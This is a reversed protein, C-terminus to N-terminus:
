IWGFLFFSRRRERFVVLMVERNDPGATYMIYTSCAPCKRLVHYVPVHKCRPQRWFECCAHLMSTSYKPNQSKNLPLGKQRTQRRHISFVLFHRILAQLHVRRQPQVVQLTSFCARSGLFIRIKEGPPCGGRMVGGGRGTVGRTAWNTNPTGYKVPQLDVGTIPRGLYGSTEIRRKLTKVWLLVVLWERSSVCWCIMYVNRIPPYLTGIRSFSWYVPLHTCMTCEHM